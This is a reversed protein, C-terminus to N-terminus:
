YEGCTNFFSSHKDTYNLGCDFCGVKASFCPEGFGASGWYNGISFWKEDCVLLRQEIKKM